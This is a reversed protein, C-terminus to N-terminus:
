RLTLDVPLNATRAENEPSEPVKERQALSNTARKLARRRIKENKNNYDHSQQIVTSTINTTHPICNTVKAEVNFIHSEREIEKQRKRNPRTHIKRQLLSILLIILCSIISSAATQVEFKILITKTIPISKPMQDLNIIQQFDQVSEKVKFELTTIALKTLSYKTHRMGNKIIIKKNFGDLLLKIYSLQNKPAFELPCESHLVGLIEQLQPM